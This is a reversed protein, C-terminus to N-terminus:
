SQREGQQRFLVGRFWNLIDVYDPVQQEDIPSAHDADRLVMLRQEGAYADIIRRQFSPPVTRDKESMIFVAPVNARAANAISCLSEPVQAAIFKSLGLNWWGHQGAILERLPPPNRVLLGALPKNAALHMAALCGLSNGTALIPRGSARASIQTWAADAVATVYRLSARGGSGGYGPPNVTWVEAALDPWVEAPHESMREARGGTGPFKLVFLDADIQKEAPGTNQIWVEFQGHEFRWAERRKQEAPIPHTTPCLILRDALRNLM